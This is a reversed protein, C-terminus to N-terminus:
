CQKLTLENLHAVGFLRAHFRGDPPLRSDEGDAALEALAAEEAAM